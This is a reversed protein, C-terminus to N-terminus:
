IQIAREGKDCQQVAVRDARSLEVTLVSLRGFDGVTQPALRGLSSALVLWYRNPWIATGVKEAVPANRVLASWSGRQGM